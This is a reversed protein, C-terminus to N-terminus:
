LVRRGRYIERLVISPLRYPFQLNWMLDAEEHPSYVLLSIVYYLCGLM